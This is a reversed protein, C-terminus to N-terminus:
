RHTGTAYVFTIDSESIVSEILGEVLIPLVQEIRATRFSDPVVIAVSEGPNVIQFISKEIGIPADITERIARDRDVLGPTDTVDLSGLLKGAPLTAQVIESGYPIEIEITSM